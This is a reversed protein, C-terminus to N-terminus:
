QVVANELQAQLAGTDPDFCEWERRVAGESVLEWAVILYAGFGAKTMRKDERQSMDMRYIARYEAKLAGFVSRDLPQLPDTLRPPIFHLVIRVKAAL